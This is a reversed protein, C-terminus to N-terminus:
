NKACRSTVPDSLVIVLAKDKCGSILTYPSVAPLERVNVNIPLETIQHLVQRVGKDFQGGRLKKVNM